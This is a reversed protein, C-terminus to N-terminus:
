LAAPDIWILREIFLNPRGVRTLFLRLWTDFFTKWFIEFPEQCCAIQMWSPRKIKAAEKYLTPYPTCAGPFRTISVRDIYKLSYMNLVICITYCLLHACQILTIHGFTVSSFQVSSFQVKFIIISSIFYYSFQVSSFQFHFKIHPTAKLLVRSRIFKRWGGWFPGFTLTVTNYIQYVVSIYGSIYRLCQTGAAGITWQNGDAPGTSYQILDSYMVYMVCSPQQALPYSESWSTGVCPPIASVWVLRLTIGFSVLGVVAAGAPHSIASVIGVVAVGAPRSIAFVTAGLWAYLSPSAGHWGPWTYVLLISAAATNFIVKAVLTVPGIYSESWQWVPLIRFGLDPM